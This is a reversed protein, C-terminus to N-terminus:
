YKRLIKQAQELQVDRFATLLPQNSIGESMQKLIQADETPIKAQEIAIDPAIGIGDISKGSPTYYKATTLKLATQGDGLPILSQVSGKGYSRTGVVTARQNDKLAGALIEAASASGKNILVVIPAGNLVDGQKAYYAHNADYVLYIKAM